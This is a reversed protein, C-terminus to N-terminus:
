RRGPQCRPKKEWVLPRKSWHFSSVGRGCCRSGFGSDNEEVRVTGRLEAQLGGGVPEEPLDKLPSAAMVVGPTICFVQGKMVSITLNRHIQGDLVQFGDVSNWDSRRKLECEAEGRWM